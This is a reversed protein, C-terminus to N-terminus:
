RRIVSTGVLVAGATVMGAAPTTTDAAAVAAMRVMPVAVVARTVVVLGMAGLMVVVLSRTMVMSFARWCGDLQADGVDIGAVEVSGGDDILQDLLGQV